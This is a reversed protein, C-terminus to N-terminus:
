DSLRDAEVRCLAAKAVVLKRYEALLKKADGAAAAKLMDGELEAVDLLAYYDLSEKLHALVIKATIIPHNNTVNADEFATGHELEVELGRRFEGLDLGMGGTGVEDLITKAEEATVESSKLESWDSIGLEGCVRAVEAKTVYEPMDM